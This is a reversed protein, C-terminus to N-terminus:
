DVAFLCVFVCVCLFFFFPFFTLAMCFEINANCKSKVSLLIKLCACQVSKNSTVSNIFGCSSIQSM